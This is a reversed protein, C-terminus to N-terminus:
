RGKRTLVILAFNVSGFNKRMFETEFEGPVECGLVDRVASLTLGAGAVAQLYDDRSHPENPLHYTVGDAVFQTPMGCSVFDPHVDTILLHAGPAMMRHFESVAGRLNAVHCLTLACVVLDFVASEVPVDDELSASVFEIPFSEYAAARKAIAQMGPNPEIATVQWGKRALKLAFRGTGAGADLATMGELGDLLDLSYVEEAAILTNWTTDYTQAWHSYGEMLGLKVPTTPEMQSVTRIANLAIEGSYLPSDM